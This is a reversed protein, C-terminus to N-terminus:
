RLFVLRNGGPVLGRQTALEHFLTLGHHEAPGLVFHLNDRLYSHATEPDLHLGAAEREAIEQLHDVGRDRAERLREDVMHLQPCDSRAAWLAFVFPLGTWQLWREGLDWVEEFPEDPVLMARDGIVLVADTQTESVSQGFKLESIEPEIGYREGLMVLALVVSTRSGADVALSRISGAPVRSYLKVSLVAGRTAVCADSVAIYDTQRLYEVSPVLAVDLSGASLDTALRSPYDLSLEIEDRNRALGEILPKSNLYSVAGVRLTTAMTTPTTCTKKLM